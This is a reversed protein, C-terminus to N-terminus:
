EDQQLIQTGNSNIIYNDKYILDSVKVFNYGQNKINKILTDLSDATHETGNHSLIIAGNSLKSKIRNWMENGTLGTYDLTDLSWHIAYYGSDKASQIVTQNYEGYPTRYLNTRNGTIKEIKDNCKEIEEINEEYSLNNVHPHTDSHSGIEHGATFIKKVAEPYKEIWDGVMFFTIKTNNEELIKLINDIDDANWACNMTLAVKNEETKVSYIPLLKENTSSTAISEKDGTLTGAICFLLVVTIISILYTYIKQKNFILFM